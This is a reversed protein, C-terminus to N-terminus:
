KQGGAKMNAELGCLLGLAIDTGSSSGINLVKNLSLTVEEEKGNFISQVLQIISERVHGHAAKKLAMYSIANTLTKAKEVVEDAFTRYGYLPSNPINMSTFLGVLFDDGSPTLGPGLGILRSANYVANPMGEKMIEAQLTLVREELIKSMEMDFPSQPMQSKKIGGDKGHLDIFQKVKSINQYFVEPNVPYIPLKSEWMDAKEVSIILKNSIMLMQDTTFVTDNVALDLDNFENKEIVLTNPGNDIEHCGITYLEDNDLCQINITRKFTSHVFGNLNSAKIRKIFGVDGSKAYRMGTVEKLHGVEM